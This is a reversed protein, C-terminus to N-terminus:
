LLIEKKSIFDMDRYYFEKGNWTKGLDVHIWVWSTRSTNWYFNVNTFGISQLVKTMTGRTWGKFDFKIDAALGELHYSNTSGGVSRNHETGRFGSNVELSGVINRLQQLKEAMKVINYSQELSPSQKDGSWVFEDYTFNDQLKIM